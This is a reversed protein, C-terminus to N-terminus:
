IRYLQVRVKDPTDSYVQGRSGFIRTGKPFVEERLDRVVERCHGFPAIFEVFYINEGSRWESVEPDRGTALIDGLSADSLYAWNCFGIPGRHADWYYRYQNLEFSPGVRQLLAGVPYEQHLPSSQCLWILGGMVRLFPEQEWASGAVSTSNHVIQSEIM